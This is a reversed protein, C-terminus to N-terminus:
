VFFTALPDQDGYHSQYSERIREKHNKLYITHCGDQFTKKPRYLLEDSIDGKFAKRLMPKWNRQSDMKYVPPIKMCFEVLDRHLFPTRLEVTGGFMMAKNTRILNNKHLNLILKEREKCYPVNEYNWAFVHGYSAFLEDSGEGGFVVKYGKEHIAKALALQAVAPSVQTWNYDEIAYIALDLNNEVWEQSIIVEHLPVGIEKAALRAYYLDDKQGTDEMSVVFAELDPIRQKLLYTIITSDGGGSLITCVPVDSILENDVGETLLERIGTTVEDEEMDEIQSLTPFDYFKTKKLDGTEFDFVYYHGPDALVIDNANLKLPKAIAKLESAVVLEKGRKFFYLPIRGMFDRAFVLQKKYENHIAFAFMGDLDKICDTEESEYLDILYETDSETHGNSAWLEGNYVMTHEKRTIPQNSEETLGQISLRNHGLWWGSNADFIHDKYDTGRHDLLSLSELFQEGNKFINGAVFGCM